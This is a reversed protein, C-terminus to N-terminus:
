NLALLDHSLEKTAGYVKTYLKYLKAYTAVNEANPTFEDKYHVFVEAAAAANEFWGAGIAALMAAGLGPGQEVTLNVITANFIDAQMQLWDPNKAGGGVSVIRDFKRGAVTEMMVQSDKLSFTIGELVAKAFHTLTHHTDIGIFSGRIKSDVHPTREGVIYPTFLLGDAGPALESIGGLLEAFSKGEAFTNKFWDLSNGAALTVGMSYYDGKAAHNFLHLKGEYDASADNEFSLFVGSTGISCMGAGDKIIGSGVAACANDAGGAFVPVNVEFGLLDRIEDTLIGIQEQSEFLKPLREAPIDFTALIPKAWEKKTIDLLLTGAADSFDTAFTDTLWLGLYDKPLMMYRVKAWNEPENEQLWLIKPLTFGELAINKTLSLVLDGAKETIEQCQKTTRVDNWLIAPRISKKNDDLVVLSHMQGSFSIGKLGTKIQPYTRVLLTIVKKAAEIWLDPDQESYGTQPTSIPYSSSEEGIVEGKENMLLGKLSSTGLDIGLVYAM